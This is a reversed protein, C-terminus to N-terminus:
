IKIMNIFTDANGVIQLLSLLASIWKWMASDRCIAAFSFAEQRTHSLM